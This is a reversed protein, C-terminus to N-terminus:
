TVIGIRIYELTKTAKRHLIRFDDAPQGTRLPAAQFGGVQQYHALMLLQHNRISSNSIRNLISFFM